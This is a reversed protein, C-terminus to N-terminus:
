EPFPVGTIIYNKEIKGFRNLTRNAEIAMKMNNKALAVKMVAEYMERVDDLATLRNQRARGTLDTYKEKSVYEKAQFYFQQGMNIEYDRIVMQYPDKYKSLAVVSPPVVMQKTTYKLFKAMRLIKPDAKSYIDRGYADKGETLHVALKMLMNPTIFDSFMGFDGRLPDTLEAYPDEMSYDYVKVIGDDSISKVILSHGEMWSPRLKTAEEILEEDEDDLIIAAALAPIASKLALVSLAGSMRRMGAARYEARQVDSLGNEKDRAKALDESANKINSYMSRISELKFGLFDGLPVSAFSIGSKGKKTYWKPLRSFTPTNQKVFEAAERQVNKQQEATLSDYKQGYLKLAFSQREARYIVLKTYDDIQAYKQGLTKDVKKAKNFWKKFKTEYKGIPEETFMLGISADNLDILGATVDAAVLGNESMEDLLAKVEPNEKGSLLRNARNVTDQVMRPNVVGNAAMFFWGGTWNKRWTPINYVVKTKRMLKLGKFYYNVIANESELLPQSQLMDFVEAQVYKGNLPSYQDQVKKWEGSALEAETMESAEKIYDTGLEKSIRTILQTKYFTQSMTVATDIFRNVPDKEKGLLTEIYDPLGKKRQFAPKPIRVATASLGTFKFDPKKRLAEIKKVYEEISKKAETMMENVEKETTLIDLAEQESKGSKILDELRNAKIAEYAGAVAKKIRKDTIQYNKDKFFRYSTHMYKGLNERIIDRIGREKVRKYASTKGLGAEIVEGTKTNIIRYETKGTKPNEYSEVKKNAVETLSDFMPNELFEKSMSDIFVRMQDAIALIQEGKELKSVKERAAAKDEPMATLYDDVLKMTEQSKTLKRLDGSLKNINKATRNLQSEMSETFSIIKKQIDTYIWGKEKATEKAKAFFNQLFPLMDKTSKVKFREKEVDYLSDLKQQEQATMQSRERGAFMAVDDIKNATPSASSELNANVFGLMFDVAEQESIDRAVDRRLAEVVSGEIGLKDLAKLIYRKITDVVKILSRSTLIDSSNSMIGALEALYEEGQVQKGEYAEIFSQLRRAVAQDNKDGKMLAKQLDKALGNAFDPDQNFASDFYAHFVEHVATTRTATNLNIHIERKGTQKNYIYRASETYTRYRPIDKQPKKAGQHSFQEMASNFDRDNRHTVITVDPAFARILKQAKKISRDIVGLNVGRANVGKQRTTGDLRIGGRYPALQSREKGERKALDTFFGKKKPSKKAAKPKKPKPAAEEAKAAAQTEAYEERLEKAASSIREYDKSGQVVAYANKANPIPQVQNVEGDAQKQFYVADGDPTFVKYVAFEFDTRQKAIYPKFPKTNSKLKKRRKPVNRKIRKGATPLVQQSVDKPDRVKRTSSITEQKVNARRKITAIRAELPAEGGFTEVRGDSYRMTAYETGSPRQGKNVTLMIEMKTGDSKDYTIRERVQTYKAEKKEKFEVVREAADREERAEIAGETKSDFERQFSDPVVAGQKIRKNVADRFAKVTEKDESKVKVGDRYETIKHTVKGTKTNVFVEAEYRITKGSRKDVKEVITVWGRKRKVLPSQLGSYKKRPALELVKKQAEVEKKDIKPKEVKVPKEKKPAAKKTTAKKKTAKVPEVVPEVVPASETTRAKQIGRATVSNAGIVKGSKKNTITGDEAVVYVSNRYTVEETKSEAAKPTTTQEGKAKQIGRATVSTPSIVKGSKKNTITGDEAVVYVSNRYTVEEQKPTEEVALDEEVTTEQAAFEKLKSEVDQGKEQYIAQEEKTLEQGDKIKTAITTITDDSVEGTEVFTEQETQETTEAEQAVEGDTYKAEIAKKRAVLEEIAEQHIKKTEEKKSRKLVGEKKRIERDIEAMEAVDEESYEKLVEAEEAQIEQIEKAAKEQVKRLERKEDAPTAPDQIAEEAALIKEKKAQKEATRATTGYMLRNAGKGGLDLVKAGVAGMVYQEWAEESTIYDYADFSEGRADALSYQEIMGQMFETMGERNPNSLFAKGFRTAAFKGGFEAGKEVMKKGMVQGTLQKALKGQGFKELSYSLAGTLTPFLIEAEDSEWHEVSDMGATKAKETNYNAISGGVVDVALPAGFLLSGEIMSVALSSVADVTGAAIGVVDGKKASEIIGRTEGMEGQVREIEKIAKAASENVNEGWLNESTWKYWSDATEKGLVATFLADTAVDLKDDLLSLNKGINKASNSVSTFFDVPEDTEVGSLAESANQKGSLAALETQQLGASETPEGATTSPSEMSDKKKSPYYEVQDAYQPYKELMAGVLENNDVDKYEPYKAKIGAAFANVSVKETALPNRVNEPQAM